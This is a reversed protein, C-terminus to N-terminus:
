PLFLKYQRLNYPVRKIFDAIGVARGLYEACQILEVDQRFDVQLLRLNILIMLTRVNEALQEMQLIDDLGTSDLEM